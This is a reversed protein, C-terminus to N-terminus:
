KINAMQNRDPAFRSSGLQSGESKTRFDDNTPDDKRVTQGLDFLQGLGVRYNECGLRSM